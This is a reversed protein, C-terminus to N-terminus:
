GGRPSADLGFLREGLAYLALALFVAMLGLMGETLSPTYQVLEGVWAGQFMPVMQGGIVFEYRGIALAAIVLASALVQV